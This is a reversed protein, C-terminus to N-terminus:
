RPAPTGAAIFCGGFEALGSTTTDNVVVVYDRLDDLALDVVLIRIVPSVVLRRLGGTEGSV